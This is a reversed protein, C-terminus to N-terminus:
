KSHISEISIIVHIIFQNFYEVLINPTNDVMRTWQRFKGTIRHM